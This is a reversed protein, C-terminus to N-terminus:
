EEPLGARRLGVRVTKEVLARYPPSDFNCSTCDALFHAMTDWAPKIRIAEALSARAEDIDGKLGLAAALSLHIYALRPNAARAKKFLDVAEGDHGLLLHSFGLAWNYVHNNSSQPELRLAKEQLPIAAEPQGLYNLTIALQSFAGAFNRDLAIAEELEIKAEPGAVQRFQHGPKLLM